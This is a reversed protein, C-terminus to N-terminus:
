KKKEEWVYRGTASKFHNVIDEESLIEEENIWSDIKRLCMVKAMRDDGPKRRQHATVPVVAAGGSGKGGGSSKRAAKEERIQAVRERKAEPKEGRRCDGILTTSVGIMYALEEDPLVALKEDLVALEASKRKDANSARAGSHCTKIISLRLADSRDGEYVKCPVVEKKELEYADLRHYGNSLLYGGGNMFVDIGDMHGNARIIERYENVLDPDIKVRAHIKEDRVIAAIPLIEKRYSPTPTM